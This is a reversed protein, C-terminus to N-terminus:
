EPETTEGPAAAALAARAIKGGDTIANSEDDHIRGGWSTVQTWNNENAYFALAQEAAELRAVLRGAEDAMADLANALQTTDRWNAAVEHAQETSIPDHSTGDWKCAAGIAETDQTSV